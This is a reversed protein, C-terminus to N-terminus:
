EFLARTDNEYNTIIKSIEALKNIKFTSDLIKKIDQIAQYQLSLIEANAATDTKYNTEWEKQVTLRSLLEDITADKRAVDATLECIIKQKRTNKITNVMSNTNKSTNVM